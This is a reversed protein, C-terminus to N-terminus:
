AYKVGLKDADTLKGCTVTLKQHDGTSIFYISWLFDCTEQCIWKNRALKWFSNSEHRFHYYISKCETKSLVCFKYCLPFQVFSLITAAEKCYGSNAAISGIISLEFAM